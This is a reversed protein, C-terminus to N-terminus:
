SQGAGNGSGTVDEVSPPPVAHARAVLCKAGGASTLVTVRSSDAIVSSFQPERLPAHFLGPSRTKAPSLESSRFGPAWGSRCHGGILLM